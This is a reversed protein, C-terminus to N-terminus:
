FFVKLMPAQGSAQRRRALVSSAAATGTTYAVTGWFAAGSSLFENDKLLPAKLGDVVNSLLTNEGTEAYSVTGDDATTKVLIM